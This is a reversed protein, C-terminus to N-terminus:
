VNCDSYTCVLQYMIASVGALKQLVRREREKEGLFDLDSIIPALILTNTVKISKNVFAKKISLNM